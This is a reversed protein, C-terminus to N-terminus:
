FTSLAARKIKGSAVCVYIYDDDSWIAGRICAETSSSPTYHARDLAIETSDPSQTVMIGWGSRIVQTSQFGRWDKGGDADWEGPRGTATWTWLPITNAPFNQGRVAVCNTCRIPLDTGINVQGDVTVYAFAKGKPSPGSLVVTGSRTISHTRQNFRVNCPTSPSCQRGFTLTNPATREFEFDKLQSTVQVQAVAIGAAWAFIPITLARMMLSWHVTLRVM